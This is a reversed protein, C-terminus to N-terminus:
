IVPFLMSKYIGNKELAFNEVFRVSRRPTLTMKWFLPPIM